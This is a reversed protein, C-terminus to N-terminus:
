QAELKLVQMRRVRGHAQPAPGTMAYFWPSEADNITFEWKLGDATGAPWTLEVLENTMGDRAVLLWPRNAHRGQTPVETLLIRRFLRLAGRTPPYSHATNQM